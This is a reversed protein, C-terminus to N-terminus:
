LLNCGDDELHNNFLCFQAVNSTLLRQMRLAIAEIADMSQHAYDRQTRASAATRTSDLEDTESSANSDDSTVHTTRRSFAM